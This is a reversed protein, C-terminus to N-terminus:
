VERYPVDSPVIFDKENGKYQRFLYKLERVVSPSDACPGVIVQSLYSLNVPVEVYPILRGHRSIRHKVNDGEGKAIILRVEEEYEYATHKHYSSAAIALTIFLNLLARKQEEKEMSSCKVLQEKYKQYVVNYVSEDVKGYTVDSAHLRGQIDVNIGKVAYEWNNFCLCVGKGGCSYTNWMPLFDRKHSFSVIYPVKHAEFLTCTIKEYWELKEMNPDATKWLSSLKLSQDKIGLEREVKPLISNMLLEFGYRFEMPDNMAYISSAWFTLTREEAKQNWEISKIM